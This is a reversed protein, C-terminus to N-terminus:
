SKYSGGFFDVQYTDQKKMMKTHTKCGMGSGVKQAQLMNTEWAM